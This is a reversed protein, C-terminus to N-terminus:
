PVEYVEVLALGTATGVASVQATYSGPALTVLLAADKSGAALGFAGVANAADALQAADGATGWNDNENIVTTDRFLQLKPDAVAGLLNFASIVCRAVRGIFGRLNGPM